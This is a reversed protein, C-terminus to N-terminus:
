SQAQDSQQQQSQQQQEQQQQVAEFQQQYAQDQQQQYQQYQAQETQQDYQAPAQPPNNIADIIAPANQQLENKLKELEQAVVQKYNPFNTELWTLAGREDNSQIFQEFEKLQDDTMQNALTMGVRLELTEYIQALLRNKEQPPLQGLGVNHLLNDDIKLRQGGGQQQPQQPAQQQPYQPQQQPQQPYPQQQYGGQQPAPQQPQQQPQQNQQPDM